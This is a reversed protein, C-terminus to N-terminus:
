ARSTQWVQARRIRLVARMSLEGASDSRVCGDEASVPPAAWPHHLAASARNLAILAAADEPRPARLLVRSPHSASTKDPM